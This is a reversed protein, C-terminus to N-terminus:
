GNNPMEIDIGSLKKLNTKLTIQTDDKLNFDFSGKESGSKIQVRHKGSPLVVKMSERSKFLPVDIGDVTSVIKANVGRFETADITLTYVKNRSANPMSVPDSSFLVPNKGISEAMAMIDSADLTRIKKLKAEELAKPTFGSISIFVGDVKDTVCVSHFARIEKPTVRDSWAKCEVYITKGSSTTMVLDKGGDQTKGTKETKWLKSGRLVDACLSEFDTGQYDNLIIDDVAM